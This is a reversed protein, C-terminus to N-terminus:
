SHVPWSIITTLYYNILFFNLFNHLIVHSDKSFLSFSQSRFTPLLTFGSGSHKTILASTIFANFFIYLPHSTQCNSLGCYGNRVKVPKRTPDRDPYFRSDDPGELCKEHPSASQRFKKRLKNIGIGTITVSIYAFTV